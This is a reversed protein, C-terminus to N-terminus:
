MQKAIFQMNPTVTVSCNKWTTKLGCSQPSFDFVIAFFVNVNM